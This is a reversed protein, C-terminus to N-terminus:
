YNILIWCGWAFYALVIWCIGVFLRDDMIPDGEYDTDNDTRKIAPFPEATTTLRERSAM